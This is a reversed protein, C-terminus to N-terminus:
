IRPRQQTKNLCFLPPSPLFPIYRMQRETPLNQQTIHNKTSGERCSYIHPIDCEGWVWELEFTVTHHSKWRARGSCSAGAEEGLLGERVGFRPLCQLQFQPASTLPPPNIDGSVGAGERQSLWADSDLSAETQVAPGLSCWQLASRQGFMWINEMKKKEKVKFYETSYLILTYLVSKWSPQPWIVKNRSPPVLWIQM